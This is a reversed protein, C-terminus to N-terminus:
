LYNLHLIKKPQGVNETFHKLQQSARKRIAGDDALIVPRKAQEIFAIAQDIIKEDPAGRRLKHFPLPQNTAEQKAIDEPLEIQCAGPKGTGALKFAKRVVEPINDPHIIQQAWKILPNLVDVVNMAQHSGKHMRNTDEQGTIVVLLARGTNGDAVGTM